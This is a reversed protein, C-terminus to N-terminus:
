QPRYKLYAYKAASASTEWGHRGEIFGGRFLFSKIFHFISSSIARIMALVSHSPNRNIAFLRAYKELRADLEEKSGYAEHLLKGTIRVKRSLSNSLLREHVIRDDWSAKKKHYLRAKWEPGLYGYRMYRGGYRNIRRCYYICDINLQLESISKLLEPSSREDADIQFVWDNKAEQAGFNRAHGFGQWKIQLVNAGCSLAQEVTGDKSGSDVVIIDDSLRSISSICDAINDIENLTIIVVSIM